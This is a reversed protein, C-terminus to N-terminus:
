PSIYKGVLPLTACRIHLTFKCDTCVFIVNSDSNEGCTNSTEFSRIALFFTHQHGKYKLTEPILCCQIDSNFLMTGNVNMVHIFSAMAVMIVLMVGYCDIRTHHRLSSPSHINMFYGRKIKLPLKDCRNHLFFNCQVCAYFLADFIMHICGECRTDDM